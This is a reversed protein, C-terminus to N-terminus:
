NRSLSALFKKKSVELPNMNLKYKLHKNEIVLEIYRDFLANLWTETYNKSKIEM